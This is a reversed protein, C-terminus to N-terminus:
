YCGNSNRGELFTEAVPVVDFGVPNVANLKVVDLIASEKTEYWQSKVGAM